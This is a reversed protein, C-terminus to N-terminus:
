KRTLPKFRNIDNKLSAKFQMPECTFLRFHKELDVDNDRQDYIERLSRTKM